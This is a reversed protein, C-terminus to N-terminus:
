NVMVRHIPYACVWSISFPPKFKISYQVTVPYRKTSVHPGM